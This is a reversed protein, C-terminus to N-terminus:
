LKYFYNYLPNNIRGDRHKFRGCEIQLTDLMSESTM